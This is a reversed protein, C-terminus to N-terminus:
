INSLTRFLDKDGYISMLKYLSRISHVADPMNLIRAYETSLKKLYIGAYAIMNLTVSAYELM